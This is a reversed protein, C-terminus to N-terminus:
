RRHEGKEPEGPYWWGYGRDVYNGTEPRYDYRADYEFDSLLEDFWLPIEGGIRNGQCWLHKLYTLSTIDASQLRNYSCDLTGLIHTDIGTFDLEMIRNHSCYLESLRCCGTINLDTISNDSCHLTSLMRYGSLDLSPLRNSYCVFQSLWEKMGAIDLESIRNQYCWFIRMKPCEGVNLTEIENESCNFVWLDPSASVDLTKLENTYCWLSQLRRRHPIELSRLRNNDCAIDELSVCRSLDIAEVACRSFNLYRLTTSWGIDLAKLNNYSLFLEKLSHCGNLKIDELGCNTFDVKELLPCDSLDVETVYNKAARISVLAKCGSLDVKGRLDRETLILELRGNEYKVKPGWENLPLDSGWKKSVSRWNPGDTDEFLRILYRRVEDESPLQVPVAEQHLTIRAEARGATVLFTVDRAEAGVNPYATFVVEADGAEGRERDLAGSMREFQDPIGILWPQGATFRIVVDGGTNEVTLSEESFVIGDPLPAPPDPQDIDKSCSFPLLSLFVVCSLLLSIHREKM